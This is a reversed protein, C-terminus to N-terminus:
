YVIVTIEVPVGNYTGKIIGKYTGHPIDYYSATSDNVKDPRLENGELDFLQDEPNLEIIEGHRYTWQTEVMSESLPMSRVSESTISVLILMCLIIFSFVSIVVIKKNYLTEM